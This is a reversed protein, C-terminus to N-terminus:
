IGLFDDDSSPAPASVKGRLVQWMKSVYSVQHIADDLANHATGAVDRPKDVKGKALEVITRVCRINWFKWPAARGLAKLFAYELLVPDFSAGNGWIQANKGMQCFTEFEELAQALSMEGEVASARAKDSQQMWWKITGGDPVGYRMSDAIDIARYFKAGIQGLEPDFYCAGITVIPANPRTGFTEIDVMLHNLTTM